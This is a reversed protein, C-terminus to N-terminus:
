SCFVRVMPGSNVEGKGILMDELYCFKGVRNLCMSNGLDMSEETDIDEGDGVRECVMERPVRTFGKVLDV